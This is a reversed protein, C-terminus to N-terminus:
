RRRRVWATLTDRFPLWCKGHFRAWEVKPVNKCSGSPKQATSLTELVIEEPDSMNTDAMDSEDAFAGNGEMADM